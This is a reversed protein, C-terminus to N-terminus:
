LKQFCTNLVSRLIAAIPWIVWTIHWDFTLFSVCLYICTVTQWYVSMIATVRESTYEVEKASEPVHSSGITGKGNLALLSHYGANRNCTFVILYVGIAALILVFAASCQFWFETPLVADILIPPMVSMICLMCGLSLCLAHSSRSGELQTKIYDTAHFDIGVTRRRIQQWKGKIVGTIIFLGVAAGISFFLMFLGFMDLIGASDSHSSQSYADMVIFIVPSIICLLVGVAILQSCKVIDKLYQKTEELSLLEMSSAEEKIYTKIGLEEAVEDLNGFESIVIGVAENEAKGKNKLETYKDEMMQGLESKARRVEPTDPLSLFMNELYNKLTEM